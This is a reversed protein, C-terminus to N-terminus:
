KWSLQQHIHYGECGIAMTSKIEEPTAVLSTEWNSVFVHYEDLTPSITEGCEPCDTVVPLTGLGTFSELVRALYQIDHRNLTTM